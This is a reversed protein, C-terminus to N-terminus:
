RPRQLFFARGDLAAMRVVRDLLVAKNVALLVAHLDKALNVGFRRQNDGLRDPLVAMMDQVPQDRM